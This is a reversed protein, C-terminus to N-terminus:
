LLMEIQGKLTKINMALDSKTSYVDECPPHKKMMSVDSHVLWDAVKSQASMMEAPAATAATKAPPTQGKRQRTSFKTVHDKIKIKGPMCDDFEITFSAHSQVVPPTSTPPCPAAHPVDTDKTPIEHLEAESTKQHQFDKTPIEFYSPERHYSPFVTKPQSDSLPGSFDAAHTRLGRSGCLDDGAPPPASHGLQEGSVMIDCEDECAQQCVASC